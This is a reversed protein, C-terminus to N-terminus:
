LSTEWITGRLADKIDFEFFDPDVPPDWKSFDPFLALTDINGPIDESHSSDGQEVDLLSLSPSANEPSPLTASAPAAAPLQHSGHEATDNHSDLGASNDLGADAYEAKERDYSPESQTLGLFTVVPPADSPTQPFASSSAYTSVSISAAHLSGRRASGGESASARLDFDAMNDGPDLGALTALLDLSALNTELVPGQITDNTQELSAYYATTDFTSWDLDAAINVGASPYESPQTVPYRSPAADYLPHFPSILTEECASFGLAADYAPVPGSTLPLHGLAACDSLFPSIPQQPVPLMQSYQQQQPVPPYGSFDPPPMWDVSISPTQNGSTSTTTPEPTPSRAPPQNKLYPARGTEKTKQAYYEKMRQINKQKEIAKQNGYNHVRARHQLLLAETPFEETCGRCPFNEIHLHDTKIHCHMMSIQPFREGCGMSCEYSRKYENYRPEDPLHLYAHRKQGASGKVRSGCEMCAGNVFVPLNTLSYVRSTRVPGM